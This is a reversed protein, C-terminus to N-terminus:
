GGTMENYATEVDRTFRAPDCIPSRRMRDRLTGRLQALRDPDSALAAATQVFEDDTRAILEPLGINNLQSVGARGVVTEGVRTVVPVGMWLSDLSTTHGNYPLTDLGIDIESYIRLYEARPRPTVFKVREREIGNAKFVDEVNQRDAMEPALLLMRSRPVCRLVRAWLAVIPGNVKSYSNLCGFTIFGKEASPLTDVPPEDRADGCIIDPDYCWFSHALRISREQYDADGAEPPDLWPDTLRYDMAKLGTGGPYGAFTVQIPAPKRAFVLLRNGDMHLSLDVLIDIEDGRIIESVEEDPVGYIDRWRDCLSQFRLTMPDPRIVNSYCFLEFQHRDHHEFLPLINRGVVHDRFDSSLYGIRLHRGSLLSRARSVFKSRFPRAHIRDWERAQALIARSDYDPHFLLAYVLNSRASAFSPDLEVAHRYCRVADGISGQERRATGLNNYADAYGPRLRIAEKLAAVAEELRGASKLCNGYNNHAEALAPDLRIAERYAAEAKQLDGQDLLVNGLNLYCQASGPHLRIAEECVALAEELRGSVRLANGLNIYGALFGPRCELARRGEAIAETFREGAVYANALNSHADAFDPRLELAKQFAAISDDPKGASALAIGLNNHLEASNPNLRLAEEWSASAEACQGAAYLAGGLNLYCEFREPALAVARRHADIAELLRGQSQLVIGLQDYAEAYTPQLETVRVYAGAAENLKGQAWLFNGLQFCSEVRGPELQAAKQLLKDAVDTSGTNGALLGLQRWAPGYDPADALIQRYSSEADALRGNQQRHLAERFVEDINIRVPSVESCHPLPAAKEM